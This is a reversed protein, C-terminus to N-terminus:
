RIFNAKATRIADFNYADDVPIVATDKVVTFM